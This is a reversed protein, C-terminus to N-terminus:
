KFFLMAFSKWAMLNGPRIRCASLGTKFAKLKRGEQHLRWATGLLAGQLQTKANVPLGSALPIPPPHGAQLDDEGRKARQQRFIRATEEYFLRKPSPQTHVISSDHLRYYYVVNPLFFVKCVEALRLQFDIDEASVFFERFGGIKEVFDRKVSFTCLHTRTKGSLLEDTIDCSIEGSGLDVINGGNCDMLAFRACVAGTGPAQSLWNLQTEICNDAFLDDADCFMVFEGAAHRLGINKAAAIGSANGNLLKIRSDNQFFSDVINRSRDTSQDDIIILELDQFPQRLISNVAQVVYAEANHMPMIVSVVPANITKM